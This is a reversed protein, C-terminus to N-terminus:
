PIYSTRSAFQIWCFTNRTPRTFGAADLRTRRKSREAFCVHVCECTCVHMLRHVAEKIGKLYWETWCDPKCCGDQCGDRSKAGKVKVANLGCAASNFPKSWSWGVTVDTIGNCVDGGRGSKLGWWGWRVGRLGGDLVCLLAPSLVPRLRANLEVCAAAKAQM